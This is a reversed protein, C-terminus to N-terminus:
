RQTRKNLPSVQTEGNKKEWHQLHSHCCTETMLSPYTCRGRIAVNKLTEGPFILCGWKRKKKKLHVKPVFCTKYGPWVELLFCLLAGFNLNGRCFFGDWLFLFPRSLGMRRKTNATHMGWLLFRLKRVESSCTKCTLSWQIKKILHKSTQSADILRVTLTDESGM